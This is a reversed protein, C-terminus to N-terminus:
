PAAPPLSVPEAARRRRWMRWAVPVGALLALAVLPAVVHPQLLTAASPRIGAAFMRGLGSGLSAYILSSPIVGLATALAFAGFPLRMVAAGINILWFPMGPILRLTLVLAFPDSRAGAQLRAVRRGALRVLLDGAATRCIAFILVGGLTTGLAALLGGEVMGFLLGGAMALVMVVPLCLTVAAAVIGAFALASAAPHAAVRAELLGRSANLQDLSLHHLLGSAYAAVALAVILAVPGFRLMMPGVGLPRSGAESM